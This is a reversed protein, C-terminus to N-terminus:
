KHKSREIAATHSPVTALKSKLIKLAYAKAQETGGHKSDSVCLTANFGDERRWCVRWANQTKLRVLGRIGSNSLVKTHRNRCNVKVTVLALNADTNNLGNGDGHDVVKGSESGCILVHMSARTQRPIGGPNPINTLAYWLGPRPQSAFFRFHRLMKRNRHHNTCVAIKDQTLAVLITHKHIEVDNKYHDKM